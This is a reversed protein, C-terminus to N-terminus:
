PNDIRQWLITVATVGSTAASGDKMTTTEIVSLTELVNDANIFSFDHSQVNYDISAL